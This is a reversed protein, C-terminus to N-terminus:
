EASLIRGSIAFAYVKGAVSRVAGTPRISWFISGLLLTNKGAVDYNSLEAYALRICAGGIETVGLLINQIIRCHIIEVVRVKIHRIM